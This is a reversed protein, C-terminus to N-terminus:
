AFQQQEGKKRFFGAQARIRIWLVTKKILLLVQCHWGPPCVDCDRHVLVDQGLFLYNETFVPNKKKLSKVNYLIQKIRLHFINQFRYNYTICSETKKKISRDQYRHLFLCISFWLQQKHKISESSASKNYNCFNRIKQIFKLNKLKKFNKFGLDYGHNQISGSGAFNPAPDVVRCVYRTGPVPVTGYM